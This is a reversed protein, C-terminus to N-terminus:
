AVVESSPASIADVMQIRSGIWHMVPVAMSNGLAKYRASDSAGPINTYNDPFGQLRECEIPMLYRVRSKTAIAHIDTKTLTYSLEEIFGKENPGNEDNRGIQTGQLSYTIVCPQRQGGGMTNLTPAIVGNLRPYGDPSRQEFSIATECRKKRSPKDNRQLTEREFLVAAARRWDGLYGVVFV